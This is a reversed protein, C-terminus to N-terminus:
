AEIVLASSIGDDVRGDQRAAASRSDITISVPDWACVIDVLKDVVDVTSSLHQSPACELHIKGETTRQAACIAWTKRDQSRDVAVAIPGVLTPATAAMTQWVEPAIVSGVESEDPPWDGLGLIDAKFLALADPTKAKAYLRAIDRQKALLGYSPNAYAWTAPDDLPMGDEACFEAYYLDPQGAQGLRRMDFLVQCNPQQQWVAATSTYITQANAASLQAGALASVETERLNYSEDFVVLDVADLGRGLDDSRVGLQITAGSKLQIM